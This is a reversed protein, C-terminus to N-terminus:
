RMFGGRPKFGGTRPKRDGEERARAENVVLTRGDLQHGNLEMIANKAEEDNPMEVFAFGRSRGTYKDMIVTASEVTGYAGFLDKLEENTTKFPLSGVFIKM